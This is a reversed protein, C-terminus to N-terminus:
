SLFNVGRKMIAAVVHFLMAIRCVLMAMQLKGYNSDQHKFLVLLLQNIIKIYHLLQIPPIRDMMYMLIFKFQIMIIIHLNILSYGSLQHIIEPKRQQLKLNLQILM